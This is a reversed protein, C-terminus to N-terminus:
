QKAALKVVSDVLSATSADGVERLADLSWKTILESVEAKAKRQEGQYTDALIQLELLKQKASFPIDSRSVLTEIKEVTQLSPGDIIIAAGHSAIPLWEQGSEEALEAFLAEAAPGDGQSVAVMGLIAKATIRSKQYKRDLEVGNALLRAKAAYEAGLGEWGNSYLALSFASYAVYKGPDDSAAKRALEAEALSFVPYQGLALGVSAMSHVLEKHVEDAEASKVKKNYLELSPDVTHKSLKQFSVYSFSKRTEEYQAKESKQTSACAVLFFVSVSMMVVQLSSRM